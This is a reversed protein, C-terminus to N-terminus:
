PIKCSLYKDLDRELLNPGQYASTDFIQAVAIKGEPIGLFRALEKYDSFQGPLVQREPSPTVPAQPIQDPNFM